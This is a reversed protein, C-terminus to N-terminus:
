GWRVPEAGPALQSLMSQAEPGGFTEGIVPQEWMRSLWRSIHPTARSNLDDPLLQTVPVLMPFLHLDALSLTPGAAWPSKALELELRTIVTQLKRRSFQLQAEPVDAACALTWVGKREPVPIGAVRGRLTAIYDAGLHPRTVGFWALRAISPAIDENFIKLWVRMRWRGLNTAPVLSPTPFSEDLYEAIATTQTIVHGNHILIPVQGDPNLQLIDPSYQELSLLDVRVSAFRLSKARLCLLVVASHGTATWHYLKLRSAPMM